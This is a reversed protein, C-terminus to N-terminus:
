TNVERTGGLGGLTLSITSTSPVLGRLLFNTYPFMFLLSRCRSRESLEKRKLRSVLFAWVGHGRNNFTPQMAMHNAALCETELEFATTTKKKNQKTVEISRALIQLCLSVYIDHAYM